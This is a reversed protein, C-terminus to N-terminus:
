MSRPGLAQRRTPPTRMMTAEYLTCIASWSINRNAPTSGERAAIRTTFLEACKRASKVDMACVTRTHAAGPEMSISAAFCGHVRNRGPMLVAGQPGTNEPRGAVAQGECAAM